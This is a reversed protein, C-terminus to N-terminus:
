ILQIEENVLRTVSNEIIPTENNNVAECFDMSLGLLMQGNFRKRNITKIKCTDRLKAM